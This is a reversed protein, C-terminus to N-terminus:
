IRSKKINVRRASKEIKKRQKQSKSQSLEFKPLEGKLKWDFFVILEKISNMTETINVQTQNNTEM